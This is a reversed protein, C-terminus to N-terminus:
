TSLCLSTRRSAPNWAIRNYFRKSTDTAFIVRCMEVAKAVDVGIYSAYLALKLQTGDGSGYEIVSSIQYQEVFRNLLDAKFEALRNCSGAGSNGGSGYRRDWYDSSSTFDDRRSRLHVLVPGIVPLTKVFRKLPDIM